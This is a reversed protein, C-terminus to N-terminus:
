GEQKEFKNTAPNLKYRQGLGLGLGMGYRYHHAMCMIAWSEIKTKGDVFQTKTSEGAMVEHCFNCPGPDGIWTKIKKETTM